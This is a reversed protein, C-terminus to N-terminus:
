DKGNKALNTIIEFFFDYENNFIFQAEETYVMTPNFENEQNKDPIFVTYDLEPEIKLQKLVEIHALESALEIPNITVNM